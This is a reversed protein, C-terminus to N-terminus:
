SLLAGLGSEEFMRRALSPVADISTKLNLMPMDLTNNDKNNNAIAIYERLIEGGSVALKTMMSVVVELTISTSPTQWGEAYPLREQEFFTRVYSVPAIGTLPDGMTMLYLSSEGYGLMVQKLGYRFGPTQADTRVRHLHAKSAQSISTTANTSNSYFSLVQDFIDQRFSHDDGNQHYPARSLSGDHEIYNHKDLDDLNMMGSSPHPSSLLAGIALVTRLDFGFNFTKEMAKTLMDLTMGRGSHPLIGHNAMANLGPCPSRVDNPGPSSWDVSSNITFVSSFFLPVIILIAFFFM